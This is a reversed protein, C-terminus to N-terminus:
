KLIKEANLIEQTAHNWLLLFNVSTFNPSSGIYGGIVTLEDGIQWDSPAAPKPHMFIPHMFSNTRKWVSGDNTILRNTGKDFDIVILCNAFEASPAVTLTACVQERKTTNVLVFYFSSRYNGNPFEVEILDGHTWHPVETQEMWDVRNPRICDEGYYAVKWESGDDLTIVSGEPNVETVSLYANLPTQPPIHPLYVSRCNIADINSLSCFFLVTFCLISRLTYM